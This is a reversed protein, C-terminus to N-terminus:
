VGILTEVKVLRCMSYIEDFLASKSDFLASTLLQMDEDMM